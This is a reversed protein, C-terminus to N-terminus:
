VQKKAFLFRDKGVLDRIIEVKEFLGSKLFIDKVEKGKNENIELYIRGSPKLYKKSFHLIAEYYILAEDDSVFLALYPEYDLVNSQMKAKDSYTVYPPNSVIIDFMESFFDMQGRNLIDGEVFTVKQNNIIANETATKFAETSIDMATVDANELKAALTIAICGSGTGVDLVKLNQSRETKIIMDVLYETEPRPILVNPTVRFKLDLFDVVGTIYQVPENKKLRKVAMHLKLIESESLRIEPNLLMDNRSYGFFHEILITLLMNSENDGYLDSIDSSYKKKLYKLNNNRIDM